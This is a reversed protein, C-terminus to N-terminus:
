FNLAVYAGTSWYNTNTNTSEFGHTYRVDYGVSIRDIVLVDIGAGFHLGVDLYTTDDSPPSNVLFSLGIPIVFPRFRGSGLSDFRVKPAVTVNLETVGVDSQKPTGLLFSTTQTVLRDSFKSYELFIEGMVNAGGLDELKMASLDLGAAISWGGKDDNANTAALTDTFVEPSRADTLASYAGRFFLQNSYTTDDDEAVASGSVTTFSLAMAGALVIYRLQM